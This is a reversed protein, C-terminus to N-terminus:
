TGALKSFDLAHIKRFWGHDVVTVYHTPDFIM